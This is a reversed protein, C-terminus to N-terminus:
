LKVQYITGIRTFRKEYARSLSSTGSMEGLELHHAGAERSCNVAAEILYKAAKGNRYQPKVYLYREVAYWENSYHPNVLSCWIYGAIEEGAVAVIFIHDKSEFFGVLNRRAFAPDYPLANVRECHEDFHMDGMLAIEPIDDLEATRVKM